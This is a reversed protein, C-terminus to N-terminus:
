FFVMVVAATAGILVAAAMFPALFTQIKIKGTEAIMKSIEARLIEDELNIGAKTMDNM